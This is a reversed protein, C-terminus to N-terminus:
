TDPDNQQADAIEGQTQQNKSKSPSRCPDAPVAPPPFRAQSQFATILDEASVQPLHKVWIDATDANPNPHQDNYINAHLNGEPSLEGIVLYGNNLRLEFSMAGDTDDVEIEKAAAM